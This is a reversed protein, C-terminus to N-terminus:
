PLFTYIYWHLIRVRVYRPASAPNAVVSEIPSNLHNYHAIFKGNRFEYIGYGFSSAFYHGPEDPDEDISCINQYKLKTASKITDEPLNVWKYDDCHYEMLTGDYFTIDFFNINGGAVLLKSDNTFKMFECYNRIPSNPILYDSVDAFEREETKCKVLGKYGRCNWFIDGDRVTHNSDKNKIVISAGEKDIITTKKSAVAMIENGDRYITHYKEGNNKIVTYLGRGVPDFTYIGLNGILCYLKGDLECLADVPNNNYVNIWNNKDLMNKVTDCRYLGESTGCYLKDEFLYTCLTNLETNYTNSFELNELDLVVIGFETSIYATKGQIDIGNIRKNPLAKNKFDSINYIEENDYLIDINANSYVIVLAGAEKAYEIHTIDIDSLGNIKDYLLIENDSKDYSYLAGSALVYVKDGTVQCYTANNYSPYLTWDGVASFGSIAILLLIFSVSLRKVM